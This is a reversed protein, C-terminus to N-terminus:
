SSYGIHLILITVNFEMIQRKLEEAAIKPSQVLLKACKASARVWKDMNASMLEPDILVFSGETWQPRIRFFDAATHWLMVHNEFDKGLQEITPHEQPLQGFIQLGEFLVPYMPILWM